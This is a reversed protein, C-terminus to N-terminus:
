GKLLRRYSRPSMGTLRAFARSFNAVNSYGLQYAIETISLDGNDLLPLAMDFRVQDILRAYSTAKSSLYRQLTRKSVGTMEAALEIPPPRSRGTNTRIFDMLVIMPDRPFESSKPDAHFGQDVPKELETQKLPTALERLAIEIGTAAAGFEINTALFFDNNALGIEDQRQLRVRKPQWSSGLALRIVQLMMMLGYLEHQPQLLGGEKRGHCFWANIGDHTLYYDAESCENHATACFTRIASDLSPAQAVNTGFQGFLEIPFTGAWYGLDHIGTDSAAHEAFDLMSIAPIVRDGSVADMLDVPLHSRSLYAATAAGKRQLAIAFNAAHRARTLPISRMSASGRVM